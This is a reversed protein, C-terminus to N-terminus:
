LLKAMDEEVGSKGRGEEALITLISSTEVKKRQGKEKERENNSSL